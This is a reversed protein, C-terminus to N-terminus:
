RFFSGALLIYLVIAFSVIPQRAAPILSGMSSIGHRLRIQGESLSQQKKTPEGPNNGEAVEGVAAVGGGGGETEEGEVMIVERRGAEAEAESIVRSGRKHSASSTSSRTRYGCISSRYSNILKGVYGSIIRLPKRVNNGKVYVEPLRM